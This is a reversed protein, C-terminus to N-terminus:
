PFTQSVNVAKEQWHKWSWKIFSSFESKCKWQMKKTLFDLSLSLSKQAAAPFFTLPAVLM